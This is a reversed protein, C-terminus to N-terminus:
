LLPYYRIYVLTDSIGIMSDLYRISKLQLIPIDITTIGAALTTFYIGRANRKNYKLTTLENSTVRDRKSYEM